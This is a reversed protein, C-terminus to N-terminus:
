GMMILVNSPTYRRELHHLVPCGLTTDQQVIHAWHLGKLAGALAM